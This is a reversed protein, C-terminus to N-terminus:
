VTQEHEEVAGAPQALIRHDSFRPRCRGRNRLQFRYRVFLTRRANASANEIAVAEACSQAFARSSFDERCPSHTSNLDPSRVMLANTTKGSRFSFAGTTRTM